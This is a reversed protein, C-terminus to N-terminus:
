FSTTYEIHVKSAPKQKLLLPIQGRVFKELIDIDSGSSPQAWEVRIAIHISPVANFASLTLYGDLGNIRSQELFTIVDAVSPLSYPHYIITFSITSLSSPIGCMPLTRTLDRAIGSDRAQLSVSELHSLNSWNITCHNDILRRMEGISISEPSLTRAFSNLLMGSTMRLEVTLSRLALTYQLLRNLLDLAGRYSIAVTLKVLPLYGGLTSRDEGLRYPYTLSDIEEVSLIPDMQLSELLIPHTIPTPRRGLDLKARLLHLHKINASKLLDIPVHNMTHLTLRTLKSTQILSRLSTRLDSNISRWSLGNYKPYESIDDFYEDDTRAWRYIRLSLSCESPTARFIHQFIFALSGSNIVPTVEDYYGIMSLSLSTTFDVISRMKSFNEADRILNALTKIKKSTFHIDHGVGRNLVLSRFRRNNAISRLTRSALAISSFVSAISVEDFISELIEVPLNQTTNDRASTMM